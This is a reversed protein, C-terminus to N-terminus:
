SSSAVPLVVSGDEFIVKIFTHDEKTAPEMNGKQYAVVTGNDSQQFQASAFRRLSGRLPRWAPWPARVQRNPAAPGADDRRPRAPRAANREPVPGQPRLALLDGSGDAESIGGLTM